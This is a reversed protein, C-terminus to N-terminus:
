PEVSWIERVCPWDEWKMLTFGEDAWRNGWSNLIQVGDLSYGVILVAHYNCKSDPHTPRWFEASSNYHDVIAILPVKQELLARKVGDITMVRTHSSIQNLRAEAYLKPDLDISDDTERYPCHDESVAGTRQLIQLSDRAYM